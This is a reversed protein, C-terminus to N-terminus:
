MFVPWASDLTVFCNRRQPNGKLKVAAHWGVQAELRYLQEKNATQMSIYVPAPVLHLHAQAASEKSQLKSPHFCMIYCSCCVTNHHAHMQPLLWRGASCHNSRQVALGINNSAHQCFSICAVLVAPMFEHLCCASSAVARALLVCQLGHM